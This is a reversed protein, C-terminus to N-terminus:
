MTVRCSLAAAEIREARQARPTDPMLLAYALGEFAFRAIENSGALGNGNGGTRVLPGAGAAPGLCVIRCKEDDIEFETCTRPHGNVPAEMGQALGPALGAAETREPHGAQGNTRAGVGSAPRPSLPQSGTRTAM